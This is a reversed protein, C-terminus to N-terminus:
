RERAAFSNLLAVSTDTGGGRGSGQNSMVRLVLLQAIAALDVLSGVMCMGDRGIVDKCTDGSCAGEKWTTSLLTSAKPGNLDHAPEWDSFSRM